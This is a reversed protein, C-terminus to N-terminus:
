IADQVLEIFKKPSLLLAMVVLAVVPTVAYTLVFWLSVGFVQTYVLNGLAGQWLTAFMADVATNELAPGGLPILVQGSTSLYLPPQLLDFVLSIGLWSSVGIRFTEEISFDESLSYEVVGGIVVSIATIWGLNYLLYAWLPYLTTFWEASSIYPVIIFSWVLGFTAM